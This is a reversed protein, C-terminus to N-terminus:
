AAAFKLGDARRQRWGGLAETIGALSELVQVDHPPRRRLVPASGGVWIEIEAPLQARLEALGEVVQNPNVVPTFSLAV